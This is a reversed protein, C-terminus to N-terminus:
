RCRLDDLAIANALTLQENELAALQAATLGPFRLEREIQELRSVVASREYESLNPVRRRIDGRSTTAMHGNEM